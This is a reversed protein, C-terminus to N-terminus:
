LNMVAFWASTLSFYVSIYLSSWWWWWQTAAAAAIVIVFLLLLNLKQKVPRDEPTLQTALSFGRLSSCCTKQLDYASGTAWLVTDFCQFEICQYV